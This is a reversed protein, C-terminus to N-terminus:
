GPRLADNLAHCLPQLESEPMFAGIRVRRRSNGVYLKRGGSVDFELDARCWYAPFSWTQRDGAPTYRSLHLEGDRTVVVRERQRGARYSLRFALWILLVDAGLFGMVPWAGVFVFVIGALFCIGSMLGMVLLFGRGNLSRHPMLEFEHRIEANTM